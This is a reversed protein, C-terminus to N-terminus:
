RSVAAVLWQVWRDDSIIGDKAVKYSRGQLTEAVVPDLGNEAMLPVVVISGGSAIQRDVSLRIQKQELEGATDPRSITLISAFRRMGNLRRASPGLDVVWSAGGVDAGYGVLVLVERGGTSIEEVRGRVIDAFLPDGAPAPAITLPIAHGTLAEPVIPGSLFFPVVVAQTVGRKALRDVAAAITSPAPVGFAVDAPKQADVKSALRKVATNWEPTGNHALLLLGENAIANAPLGIGVLAALVLIRIRM